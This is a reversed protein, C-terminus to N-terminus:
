ESSQLTDVQAALVAVIRAPEPAAPSPYVQATETVVQVWEVARGDKALWRQVATWSAAQPVQGIGTTYWLGGAKTLTYTYIKPSTRGRTDASPGAGEYRIGLVLITGNPIPINGLTFRGPRDTDTM